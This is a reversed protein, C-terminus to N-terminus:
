NDNGDKAEKQAKRERKELWTLFVMRTQTVPVKNNFTGAFYSNTALLDIFQMPDKVSYISTWPEGLNKIQKPYSM